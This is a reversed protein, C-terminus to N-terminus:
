VSKDAADNTQEAAAARNRNRKRRPLVSSEENPGDDPEGDERANVKFKRNRGSSLFDGTEQIPKKSKKSFGDDQSEDNYFSRKKPTIAREEVVPQVTLHSNIVLGGDQDKNKKKGRKKRNKEPDTFQRESLEQTNNPDIAIANDKTTKASQLKIMELEKTNKIKKDICSYCCFCIGIILGLAVAVAVIISIRVGWKTLNAKTDNTYYKTEKYRSDYYQETYKGDSYDKWFYNTGYSKDYYNSKYNLSRPDYWTYFAASYYSNV